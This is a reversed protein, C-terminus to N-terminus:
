TPICYFIAGLDNDWRGEVDYGRSSFQLKCTCSADGCLYERVCRVAVRTAFYYHTSAESQSATLMMKRDHGTVSIAILSLEDNHPKQELVFGAGVDYDLFITDVYYDASVFRVRCNCPDFPCLKNRACRLERASTYYYNSKDGQKVRIMTRSRVEGCVSMAVLEVTEPMNLTTQM